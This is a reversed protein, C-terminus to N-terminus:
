KGSSDFAHRFAVARAGDPWSANAWIGWPQSQMDVFAHPSTAVYPLPPPGEQLSDATPPWSADNFDLERWNGTPDFAYRWEPTTGVLGGHTRLGAQVWEPQPGRFAQMSLVHRGPKLTIPLVVFAQPHGVEGVTANDLTVRTPVGCNLSLLAHEPQEHFWLLLKAQSAAPENTTGRLFAEYLPKAIEFGEIRERYAIQRLRLVEATVPDCAALIRDIAASAGAYDGLREFNCLTGMIAAVEYQDGPPASSTADLADSQVASPHDLYYYGVSAMEAPSMQDPGREFVMEASRAFTRADDRHFRYQVTTFPRKFILGHQPRVLNNKYYWAGSFYDELGTGLWSPRAEDDIRISEDGELVWWSPDTSSVGLLCGVVKGRGQARFIVHPQGRNAPGSRHWAAHLYGLSNDSPSPPSVFAEASLTVAQLGSNSVCFMAGHQFRMPLTARLVSGSTGVFACDFDPTRWIKGFFADLPTAISASTQGDWYAKLALATRADADPAAHLRLSFERALGAGPLTLIAAESGPSVTVPAGRVASFRRALEEGGEFIRAFETLAAVAETGFTTPFSPVAAEGALPCVNMQFFLRPWGTHTFNETEALVRLSKRYSIPVFTYWCSQEFRSLAPIFPPKGQRLEAVTADIRPEKEGDFYFRLRQESGKGGTTWFRTVYGPGKLDALVAWTKDERGAFNNFDDNGGTPDVSSILESQPADLRGIRTPDCLQLVFAAYDPGDQRVRDRCGAVAAVVLGALACQRVTMLM